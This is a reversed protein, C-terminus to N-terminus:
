FGNYYVFVILYLATLQCGKKRSNMIIIKYIEPLQYQVAEKLNLLLTKM